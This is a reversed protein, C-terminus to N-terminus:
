WIMSQAQLKANISMRSIQSVLYKNTELIQTSFQVIGIRLLFKERAKRGKIWNKSKNETYYSFAVM